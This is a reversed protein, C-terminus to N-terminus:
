DYAESRHVIRHVVITSSVIAFLARYDGVRLRYRPNFNVLSKVDGALDNRMTDLKAFVRERIAPTLRDADKLARPRFQLEYTM